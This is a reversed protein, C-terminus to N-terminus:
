LYQANMQFSKSMLKHKGRFNPGVHRKGQFVKIKLREKCLVTWSLYHSIIEQRDNAMMSSGATLLLNIAKCKLKISMYQLTLLQANTIIHCIIAQTMLHGVRLSNACGQFQMAYSFLITTPFVSVSRLINSLSQM